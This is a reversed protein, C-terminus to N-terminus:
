KEAKLMKKDKKFESINDPIIYIVEENELFRAYYGNEKDQNGVLLTQSQDNNYKLNMKILATNQTLGNKNFDFDKLIFDKANLAFLVSLIEDVKDKNALNKYDKDLFWEKEKKYLSYKNIINKEINQKDTKDKYVVELSELDSQTKDAFLRRERWSTEDGRNFYNNLNKGVLLVKDKSNLKLYSTDYRVGFKGIMFNYVVNGKEDKMEVSVGKDETLNFDELKEMNVSIIEGQEIDSLNNFIMDIYIEKVPFEKGNDYVVQWDNDGKALNIENDKTKIHIESIDDKKFDTFVSQMVKQKPDEKKYELIYVYSGLALAFIILIILKYYKKKYYKNM